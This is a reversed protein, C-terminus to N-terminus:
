FVTRTVSPTGPDAAPLKWLGPANKDVMTLGRLFHFGSLEGVQNVIETRWNWGGDTSEFVKTGSQACTWLHNPDYPSQAIRDVGAGISTSEIIGDIVPGGVFEGNQDLINIYTAQVDPGGGARNIWVQIIRDGAIPMESTCLDIFNFRANLVSQFVLAAPNTQDCVIHYYNGAGWIVILNPAHRSGNISAAAELAQLPPSGLVADSFTNSIGSGDLSCRRFCHTSDDFPPGPSAEIRREMWWIHDAGVYPLSPVGSNTGVREVLVSWSAGTDESVFLRGTTAGTFLRGTAYLRGDPGRRSRPNLQSTGDSSGANIPGTISEMRNPSYWGAHISDTAPPANLQQTGWVVFSPNDPDSALLGIDGEVGTYHSPAIFVGPWDGPGRRKFIRSHDGGIELLPTAGM